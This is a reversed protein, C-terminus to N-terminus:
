RQDEGNLNAYFPQSRSHFDVFQAALHRYVETRPPDPRYRHKVDLLKPIDDLTIHGLRELALFAAGRANTTEPGALQEVEVGLADALIQAWLDSAAGGGGFRVSEWSTHAFAAVHPLLWAANLAVGEYVARALHARTTTLGVNLFGARVDRNGVPAMSGVLWPLFLVGHRNPAVSAAAREVREFADDPRPGLAIADDPYLISEVFFDLAKGGIGNEAM